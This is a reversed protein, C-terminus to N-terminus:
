EYHEHQDDPHPRRTYFADLLCIGLGGVMLPVLLLSAIITM